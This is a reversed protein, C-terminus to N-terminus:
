PLLPNMPTPTSDTQDLYNPQPFHPASYFSIKEFKRGGGSDHFGSSSNGLTFTRLDGLEALQPKHYIRRPKMNNGKPNQESTISKKSSM